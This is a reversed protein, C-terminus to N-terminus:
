EPRKVDIYVGTKYKGDGKYPYKQDTDKSREIIYVSWIGVNDEDWDDYAVCKIALRYENENSTIELPGKMEKSRKGHDWHEDIESGTSKKLTFSDVQFYDIFAEIMKELQDEGVESVANPAFLEKMSTINGEHASNLFANAYDYAERDESLIGRKELFQRIGYNKIFDKIIDMSQMEEGIAINISCNAAFLCIIMLFCLM